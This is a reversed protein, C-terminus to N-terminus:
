RISASRKSTHTTTAFDRSIRQIAARNASPKQEMFRAVARSTFMQSPKPALARSLLGRASPALQFGTSACLHLCRVAQVKELYPHAPDYEIVNNALGRLFGREHLKIRRVDFMAKDLNFPAGALFSTLSAEVQFKKIHFTDELGWIDVPRGRRRFSVGGYFNKTVGAKNAWACHRLLQFIDANNAHRVVFDLDTRPNLRDLLCDRITGGVIFLDCKVPLALRVEKVIAAIDSTGNLLEDLKAEAHASTFKEQTPTSPTRENMKKPRSM